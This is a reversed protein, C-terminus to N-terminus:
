NGNRLSNLYKGCVDHLKKMSEIMAEQTAPWQQEDDRYGGATIPTCIYSQKLEDCRHWELPIGLSKEIEDKHLMLSDFMRKNESKEREFVIQCSADHRRIKFVYHLGSVGSGAAIWSDKSASINSFLDM